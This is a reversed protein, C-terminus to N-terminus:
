GSTTTDNPLLFNGVFELTPVEHVYATEFFAPSQEKEKLGDKKVKYIAYETGVSYTHTAIGIYDVTISMTQYQPIETPPQYNAIGTTESQVFELEENIVEYVIMGFEVQYKTSQVRKDDILAINNFTVVNDEASVYTDHYTPALTSSGSDEIEGNNWNMSSIVVDTEQLPQDLPITVDTENPDETEAAADTSIVVSFVVIAIMIVFITLIKKMHVYEMTCHKHLKYMM